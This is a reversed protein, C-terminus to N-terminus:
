SERCSGTRMNKLDQLLPRLCEGSLEVGFVAKIETRLRQSYGERNLRYIEGFRLTVFTRIEPTFKRHRSRGALVQALQEPGFSHLAHGWRQMTKPDVGFSQQLAVVKVGSNYLRGLLLKFSPHRRVEPLVEILELGHYVQLM